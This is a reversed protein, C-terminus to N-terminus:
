PQPCGDGFCVTGTEDYVKFYIGHSDGDQSGGSQWTIVYGGSALATIDPYYQTAYTYENVHFENGWFSGDDNVMQGYVGYSDGDQESADYWVVVMGGNGFPANSSWKQDKDQGPNFSLEQGQASGDSTLFVASIFKDSNDQKKITWTAGLQNNSLLALAIRSDYGNGIWNESLPFTKLVVEDDLPDGDVSFSRWLLSDIKQEPLEHEWTIVFSGPDPLAEVEPFPRDSDEGNSVIFEGTFPTGDPDYVRACVGEGGVFESSWAIVVKGNGTQAISSFAQTLYENENILKEDTTPNGNGDFWRAKIGAGQGQDGEGDTWTVVFGGDDLGVVANHQQNGATAQNIHLEGTKVQGGPDFISAFIGEVKDGPQDRSQWAIVFGGDILGTVAPFTQSDNTTVNAQCEAVHNGNCGDWKVNNGDNCPVEGQGTCEGDTCTGGGWCPTGNQAQSTECGVGLTCTAEECPGASCKSNDEVYQCEVSEENCSDVTCDINDDCVVPVGGCTKESCDPICNHLFPRVCRAGTDAAHTIPPRQHRTASRMSIDQDGFGGGRMIIHDDPPDTWASGDDPAGDYGPHFYDLTWEWLNGSMDLAGYYSEGDTKSGVEFSGGESCGYGAVSGSPNFVATNNHCAPHPLDGWPYMRHVPGSAAYEWEAESPLRGLPAIWACFEVAQSWTLGNQPHGPRNHFINKFHEPDVGDEWYNTGWDHGDWGHTSPKTCQNPSDLFCAHYQEVVIEYKSVFFGYDLTVTHVPEEFTGGEGISGMAFNGPALYIWVDWKKWGSSDQNVYECHNQNNCSMNYGDLVPCFGGCAPICNGCIGACGDDGCPNGECMPECQCQGDICEGLLGPCEGCNGGCGDSGCEKGDCEPLCTCVGTKCIGQINNKTCPTDDLVNEHNCGVFADCTDETCPNGDDCNMFQGGLCWGGACADGSTCDNDDDCLNQNPTFECGTLHNCTDDTCENGDSCLLDGASICEGLECHDGTTCTNGDDCFSQNLASVCGVSPNCSNDTCPNDDSCDPEGAGTCLGDQCLDTVTCANADDCVAGTLNNYQCGAAPVCSDETCSNGDDCVIDAGTQCGAVADCAELGNCLNGDDCTLAIGDVCGVDPHCTESGNCTDGDDCELPPGGTCVGDTCVDKTTCVDGDNCPEQTPSYVCGSESDCSDDTCSNGDNCNIELGGTCLGESCTTKVTCADANDCLFGEHNPVFSCSGSSPECYSQLCFTNEGEPEPCSIITDPDIACEYPWAIKDCTLTGNCLDGDDFSDICEQDSQCECGVTTGQCIGELCQDAVTCPDKDDCAVANHPYECGGTETCINDTCPNEDDCKVPDGLCSGDVCHDAVTCPDGDECPGSELVENVCGDEGACKDDTCDNEDDCLNIFDGEVLLPEDIDSDCNDDIGNCKEAAPVMANCKSLGDEKCIRKGECTGFENTVQCATFLGLEVSTDTCPCEGTLSVCQALEIGDVTSVTQCEFGWPCEGGEGCKGGCFSGEDGYAVCADETGTMGSCHEPELCPRCLNPYNSVCIFVVDPGGEGVQTCTWGAPCEEQCAQTCVQEGMHEVCWGSLCDGNESCEDLLCGEGPDCQRALADETPIDPNKNEPLVLTDGPGQFDSVFIVDQVLEGKGRGDASTKDPVSDEGTGITTSCGFLLLGAVTVQLVKM